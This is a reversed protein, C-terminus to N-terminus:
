SPNRFGKLAPSYPSLGVAARLKHVIATRVFASFEQAMVKAFETDVGEVSFMSELEACCNARGMLSRLRQNSIYRGVFSGLLGRWFLEEGFRSDGSLNEAVFAQVSKASRVGDRTQTVVSTLKSISEPQIRYGAVAIDTFVANGVTLLKLFTEWDGAYANSEPFGGVWGLAARSFLHPTVNCLCSGRGRATALFYLLSPGDARGTFGWGPVPELQQGDVDVIRPRAFVVGPRAGDADYTAVLQELAGPLLYDDADVFKILEGKTYQLGENKNGYHGRNRANRIVQVRDSTYKQAVEYTNDRGRDEVVVVEYDKFEQDLVSEIATAIFPENNFATIVVSVRPTM